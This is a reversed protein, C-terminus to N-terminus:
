HCPNSSAFDNQGYLDQLLFNCTLDNNFITYFNIDVFLRSRRTHKVISALSPLNILFLCYEVIPQTTDRYDSNESTQM